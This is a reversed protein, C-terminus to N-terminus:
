SFNNKFVAKTIYINSKIERTSRSDNTILSDLSTLHEFTELQKSRDYETSPVIKWMNQILVPRLRIFTERERQELGYKGAATTGLILRNKKLGISIKMEKIHCNTPRLHKVHSMQGVFRFCGLMRDVTISRSSNNGPGM